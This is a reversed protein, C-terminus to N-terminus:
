TANFDFGIILQVIAYSFIAIVLGVIAYIAQTKANNAADENGYAVMYRVGAIVLFVLALASAFSVVKVALNPLVNKLFHNKVTTQSPDVSGDPNRRQQETATQGPLNDPKV